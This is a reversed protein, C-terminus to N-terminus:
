GEGVLVSQDDGKANGSRGVGLVFEDISGDGSVDFIEHLFIGITLGDSASWSTRLGLSNPDSVLLGFM